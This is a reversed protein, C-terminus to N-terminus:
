CPKVTPCSIDSNARCDRAALAGRLSRLPTKSKTGFAPAGLGSKRITFLSRSSAHTDGKKVHIDQHSEEIRGMDVMFGRVTPKAPISLVSPRCAWDGNIATNADQAVGRVGGHVGGGRFHGGTQSTKAASRVVMEPRVGNRERVVDQEPDRHDTAVLFDRVRVQKTKGNPVVAPEGREILGNGCLRNLAGTRPIQNQDPTGSPWPKM